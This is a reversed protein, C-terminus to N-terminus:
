AADGRASLVGHHRYFRRVRPDELLPGHAQIDSDVSRPEGELVTLAGDDDRVVVDWGVHPWLWGFAGTLNRVTSRVRDWAPVTRGEIRVGTGPHCETWPGAAGGTGSSDQGVGDTAPNRLAPGIAGTELDVCASLGGAGWNDVHGSRETGFRHVARAVFPEGTDPDIMALLRVTNTAAPYVAAAYDAQTVQETVIRDRGGTLVERLRGRGVPDGDLSLRDDRREIRQVSDGKAALVPKVVVPEDALRACLEGFSGDAFQDHGVFGGDRIVAYVDALLHGHSPALLRHFLLKNELAGTYPEDIAGIRRYEVDTLYSEVTDASLDWVADKGGLFGRRYLWLRRRLSLDVTGLEASLVSQITRLTRRLRM